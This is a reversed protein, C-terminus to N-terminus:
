EGALIQNRFRDVWARGPKNKKNFAKLYDRVWAKQFHAGAKGVAIVDGQPNLLLGRSYAATPHIKPIFVEVALDDAVKYCYIKCDLQEHDEDQLGTKFPIISDTEYLLPAGNYTFKYAM